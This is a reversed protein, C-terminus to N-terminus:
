LFRAESYTNSLFLNTIPTYATHLNVLSSHSIFLYYLTGLSTTDTKTTNSFLYPRQQYSTNDFDAKTFSFSFSLSFTTNSLYTGHFSGQLKYNGPFNEAKAFPNRTVSSFSHRTSYYQCEEESIDIWIFTAREFICLTVFAGGDNVARVM